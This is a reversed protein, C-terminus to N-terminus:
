KLVTAAFLGFVLGAIYWFPSFAPVWATWRKSPALLAPPPPVPAVIQFETPARVGGAIRDALAFAFKSAEEPGEMRVIANMLGDTVAMAVECAHARGALGVVQLAQGEHALVMDKRAEPTM